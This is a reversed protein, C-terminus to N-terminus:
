RVKGDKLWIHKEQFGLGLQHRFWEETFHKQLKKKAGAKELLKEVSVGQESLGLVSLLKVPLADATCFYYDKFAPNKLLALAEREGPDISPFFSPKVLSQLHLDDELSAALEHILGQKLSAMLKIPEKGQYGEFYFVEEYLVTAPVFIKYRSTLIKWYELLHANIIVNADLIVLELKKM